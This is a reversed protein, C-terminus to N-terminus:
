KEFLREAGKISNAIVKGCENCYFKTKIIRGLDKLEFSLNKNEPFADYYAIQIREEALGIIKKNCKPCKTTKKLM